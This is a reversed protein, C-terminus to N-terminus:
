PLIRSASTSTVVEVALFARGVASRHIHVIAYLAEGDKVLMM